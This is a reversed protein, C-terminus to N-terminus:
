EAVSFVFFVSFSNAVSECLNVCIILLSEEDTDMQAGDTALSIRSDTAQAEACASDRERSFFGAVSFVFSVSCGVMVRLEGESEDNM